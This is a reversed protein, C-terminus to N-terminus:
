FFNLKQLVQNEEEVVLNYILQYLIKATYNSTIFARDEDSFNKATLYLKFIKKELEVIEKNRETDEAINLIASTDDESQTALTIALSELKDTLQKKQSKISEREEETKALKEAQTAKTLEKFVFAGQETKAIQKLVKQVKAANDGLEKAEEGALAILDGIDFGQEKELRLKQWTIIEVECDMGLDGKLM